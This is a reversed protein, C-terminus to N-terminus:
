TPTRPLKQGNEQMWPMAIEERLLVNQNQLAAPSAWERLYM